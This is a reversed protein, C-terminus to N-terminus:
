FNYTLYARYQTRDSATAKKADTNIQTDNNAQIDMPIIMGTFALGKLGGDFAYKGTLNIENVDFGSMGVKTLDYKRDYKAYSASCTLGKVGVSAFDYDAQIKWNSSGAAYSGGYITATGDVFVAGGLNNNNASDTFAPTGDWPAVIGGHKTTKGDSVKTYAGTLTVGAVIAGLKAGMLQSDIGDILGAYINKFNGIDSERLYQAAAFVDLGAVKTKYDAQLYVANLINTVRYDWAQLTLGAVGTYIAAAAFVNANKADDLASSNVAAAAANAQTVTTGANPVYVAGVANLAGEGMKVFKNSDRDKVGNVYAFALITDPIEKVHAVAGQFVTPLMRTEKSAALPTPLEFRGLTIDNKGYVANIYSAGLASGSGWGNKVLGNGDVNSAMLITPDNKGFSLVGGTTDQSKSGLDNTTLFEVGASIGYLPATVYKLKGGVAYGSFDTTTGSETSMQTNLYVAKLTGTTKGEKFAGALDSAAFAGSGIAIAAILSINTIKMLRGQTLLPKSKVSKSHPISQYLDLKPMFFASAPFGV